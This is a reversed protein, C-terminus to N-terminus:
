LGEVPPPPWEEVRLRGEGILRDLTLRSHGSRFKRQRGGPDTSVCWVTGADDVQWVMAVETVHALHYIRM